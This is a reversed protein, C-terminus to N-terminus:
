SGVTRGDKVPPITQDIMLTVSGRLLAVAIASSPGLGTLSGADRALKGGASGGIGGAEGSSDDSNGGRPM